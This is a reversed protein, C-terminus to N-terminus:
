PDVTSSSSREEVIAPEHLHHVQEVEREFGDLAQEPAPMPDTDLRDALDAGVSSVPPPVTSLVADAGTDVALEIIDAELTAFGHADSGAREYARQQGFRHMLAVADTVTGTDALVNFGRAVLVEAALVDIDAQTTRDHNLWSAEAILRRTQRLGEYVLQVGAGLEALRAADATSDIARGTALTACAPTLPRDDLLGHLHENFSRPEIDAISCRLAESVHPFACM